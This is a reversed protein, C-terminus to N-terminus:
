AAVEMALVVDALTRVDVRRRCAVVEPAPDAPCSMTFSELWPLELVNDWEVVNDLVTM